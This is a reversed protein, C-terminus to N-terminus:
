FKIANINSNKVETVQVGKVLADFNAIIDTIRPRLTKISTDFMANLTKLANYNAKVKVQLQSAETFLTLNNYSDNGYYRGMSDFFAKEYANKQATIQTYETNLVNIQAVIANKSAEAQVLLSQLDRIHENLAAVRDTTKNLYDYINLSRANEIKLLLDLNRSIIEQKFQLDQGAALSSDIGVLTGEDSIPTTDLMQLVRDQNFELGFIYSNILGSIQFNDTEVLDSSETTKSSVTEKKDDSADSKLNKDDDKDSKKPVNVEVTEKDGSSQKEDGGFNYAFIFIFIALLISLFVGGIIFLHKKKIGAEALMSMFDSGDQDADNESSVAQGTVDQVTSVQPEYSPTEDSKIEPVSDDTSKSENISDAKEIFESKEVFEPETTSKDSQGIFESGWTSEPKIDDNKIVSSDISEGAQNSFNNESAPASFWDPPQGGSSTASDPAVFPMSQSNLDDRPNQNISGASNFNQDAQVPLGSSNDALEAPAFNQDIQDIQGAAASDAGTSVPAGFWDTASARTAAADAAGYTGSIDTFGNSNEWGVPEKAGVDKQLDDVSVTNDDSVDGSVDDNVDDNIDDNKGDGVVDDPIEEDQFVDGSVSSDSVSDDAVSPVSTEFMSEDAVSNGVASVPEETSVADVTQIPKKKRHRRKRTKKKVSDSSVLTNTGKKDIAKKDSVKEDDSKERTKKSSVRRNKRKVSAKKKKFDDEQVLGDQKVVQDEAM